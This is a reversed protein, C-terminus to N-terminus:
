KRNTHGQGIRRLAVFFTADVIRNSVDPPGLVAVHLLVQAQDRLFANVHLRHDRRGVGDLARGGRVFRQLALVAGQQHQQRIGSSDAVAGSARTTALGLGSLARAPATRIASTPAPPKALPM